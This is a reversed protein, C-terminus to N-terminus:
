KVSKDHPWVLQFLEHAVLIIVSVGTAIKIAFWLVVPGLNSLAMGVIGFGIVVIPLFAALRWLKHMRIHMIIQLVLFALSWLGISGALLAIPDKRGKLRGHEDVPDTKIITDPISFYQDSEDSYAPRGGHWIMGRQKWDKTENYITTIIGTTGGAVVQEGNSAVCSLLGIDDLNADLYRWSTAWSLGIDHGVVIKKVGDWVVDTLPGNNEVLRIESAPYGAWWKMREIDHDDHKETIALDSELILGGKDNNGVIVFYTGRPVEANIIEKYDSQIRSIVKSTWYTGYKSYLLKSNDGVVLYLGKDWAVGRLTETTGSEQKEWNNGDKSTLIVGPSGVAIFQDNVWEVKYLHSEGGAPSNQLTWEVGDLSSIVTNQSGVAIFLGKGWAVGELSHAELGSQQNTWNYGDPSTIINGNGGVMVFQGGGWTCGLINLPEGWVSSSAVLLIYGLIHIIQQQISCTGMM